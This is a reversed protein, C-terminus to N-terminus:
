TGRLCNPTSHRVFWVYRSLGVGELFQRLTPLAGAGGEASESPLFLAEQVIRVCCVCVSIIFPLVRTARMRSRSLMMM